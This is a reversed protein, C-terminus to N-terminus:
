LVAKRRGRGELRWCLLYLLVPVWFFLLLPNVVSKLTLHRPYEFLGSFLGDVHAGFLAAVGVLVAPREWKLALLMAVACIVVLALWIALLPTLPGSGTHTHTEMSEGIFMFLFFGAFIAGFLRASWRIVTIAANKGERETEMSDEM